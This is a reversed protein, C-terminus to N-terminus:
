ILSIIKFNTYDCSVMRYEIDNRKGEFAFRHSAGHLHGYIVKKVNYKAFLSEFEEAPPYHMCIIISKDSGYKEIGDKISMEMRILEISNGEM